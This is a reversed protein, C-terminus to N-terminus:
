RILMTTSQIITSVLYIVGSFIIAAAIPNDLAKGVHEELDLYPFMTKRIIHSLYIILTIISISFLVTKFSGIDPFLFIGAILLVPLARLIERKFNM